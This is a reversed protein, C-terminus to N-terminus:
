LRARRGSPRHLATRGGAAVTVAGCHPQGCRRPGDAQPGTGELRRKAGHFRPEPLLPARRCTCHGATCGLADRVARRQVQAAVSLLRCAGMAACLPRSAIYRTSARSRQRRRRQRPTDSCSLATMTGADVCSRMTGGGVSVDRACVRRATLAAVARVLSHRIRSSHLHRGRHM